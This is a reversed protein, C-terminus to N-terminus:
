NNFKRRSVFLVVLGALFVSLFIAATAPNGTQVTGNDSKASEKKDEADTSSNADKSPPQITTSEKDADTSDYDQVVAYDPDDKDLTDTLTGGMTSGIQTFINSDIVEVKLTYLTSEYNEVPKQTYSVTLEPIVTGDEPQTIFICGNGDTYIAPEDLNHRLIYESTMYRTEESAFYNTYDGQLKMVGSKGDVGQHMLIGMREATDAMYVTIVRHTHDITGYGYAIQSKRSLTGDDLIIRQYTRLDSVNLVSENEGYLNNSYTVDKRDVKYVTNKNNNTLVPYSDPTLGNDINQYWAQTGDITGSNLLYAVEGSAFQTANKQTGQVDLHTNNDLCYSNEIKPKDGGIVNMYSTSGIPTVTGSIEGTNYCNSVTSEYYSGGGTIGGCWLSNNCKVSGINACNRITGRSDGCVGGVYRANTDVNCYSICKEIVSDYAYGCIGGVYCANQISINGSATCNSILAKSYIEGCVSGVILDPLDTAVSISDSVIDFNVDKLNINKITGGKVAGFLGFTIDTSTTSHLGSITYDQGDFVGEFPVSNIGIPTIWETEGSCDIDNALIYSGKTYAEDASNVMIAMTCLDDYTKIIFSGNEDKDLEEFDLGNKLNSYTKDPLDVKYVTNKNNNVLVPSSDPTLGNDINQHWAQTGDTVDSNLLYAIEGSAYRETSVNAVSDTVTGRACVSDTSTYCNKITGPRDTGDANNSDGYNDGVIGGERGAFFTLNYVYCNEITGSYNAGAIGGVVGSRPLAMTNINGNVLYCDVIEGGKLIQGAVAGVRSDKGAGKYTFNEMGLNKVTGSVTGFLGFSAEKESSGKVSLNKIIHGNGDFTGEFGWDGDEDPDAIYYLATTGIPATWEKGSCDIDNALIYNGKTYKESDMNVLDAMQCLDEYTKIIFNGNEDTNMDGVVKLEFTCQSYPMPYELIYYGDEFDLYNLLTEDFIEITPDLASTNYADHDRTCTLSVRAANEPIKMKITLMNGSPIVASSGNNITVEKNESDKTVIQMDVGSIDSAKATIRQKYTNLPSFITTFYSSYDRNTPDGSPTFGVTEISGASSQNKDVDVVYTKDVHGHKETYYETLIYLPSQTGLLSYKEGNSDYDKFYNRIVNGGLSFANTNFLNEYDVSNNKVEPLSFTNCGDNIDSTINAYSVGHEPNGYTYDYLDALGRTDNLLYYVSHKNGYTTTMLKYYTHYEGWIKNAAYNSQFNEVKLNTVVADEPKMYDDISITVGASVSYDASLMTDINKAIDPILTENLNKVHTNYTTLLSSVQDDTLSQTQNLYGYQLALIENYMTLIEVITQIQLGVQGTVFDYQQHSFPYYNYALKMAESMVNESHKGSQIILNASLVGIIEEIDQNIADANNTDGFVQKSVAELKEQTNNGNFSTTIGAYDRLELLFDYQAELMDAESASGDSYKSAVEVYNHYCELVGGTMNVGSIVQNIDKDQRDTLSQTSLDLQLQAVATEISAIGKETIESLNNLESLIEECLEINKTTAAEEASMLGWEAILATAKSIGDYGEEASAESVAVMGECAVRMGIDLMKDVVLEKVVGSVKSSETASSAPVIGVVAMSFVISLSLLTALLRKGISKKM